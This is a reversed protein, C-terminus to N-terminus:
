EVPTWEENMAAREMEATQLAYLRSVESELPKSKARYHDRAMRVRSQAAIAAEATEFEGVCQRQTTHTGVDPTDVFHGNVRRSGRSTVAM